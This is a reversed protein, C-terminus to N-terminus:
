IIDHYRMWVFAFHGTPTFKMIDIRLVLSNNVNLKPQFIRCFACKIYKMGMTSNSLQFFEIRM